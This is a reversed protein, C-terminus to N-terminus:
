IIKMNFQSTYVVDWNKKNHRLVSLGQAMWQHQFTARAFMQWAEAYDHKQLDRNAITIHPHFPRSDIKIFDLNANSIYADVL